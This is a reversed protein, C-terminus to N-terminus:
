IRYLTNIIQLSMQKLSRTQLISGLGRFNYQMEPFPIPCGSTSDIGKLNYTSAVGQCLYQLLVVESPGIVIKWQLQTEGKNIPVLLDLTKQSLHPWTVSIEKQLEIDLQLRDEGGSLVCITDFLLHICYISQFVSSCAYKADEYFIFTLTKRDSICHQSKQANQSKEGNIGRWWATM